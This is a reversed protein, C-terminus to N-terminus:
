SAHITLCVREQKNQRSELSARRFGEESGFVNAAAAAGFLSLVALLVPLFSSRMKTDYGKEIRRNCSNMPCSLIANCTERVDPSVSM